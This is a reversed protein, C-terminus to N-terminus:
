TEDLEKKFCDISKIPTAPGYYSTAFSKLKELNNHIHKYCYEIKSFELVKGDLHTVDLADNESPNLLFMIVVIKFM